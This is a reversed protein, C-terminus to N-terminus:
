VTQRANAHCCCLLLLRAAPNHMSPKCMGLAHVLDTVYTRDQLTSTHLKTGSSSSSYRMAAMVGEPHQPPLLVVVGACLNRCFTGLMTGSSSFSYRMAAWFGKIPHQPPLSMVVKARLYRSFTGLMTGSSSFSYRMAALRRSSVWSSSLSRCGSLHASSRPGAAHPETPSMDWSRPTYYLLSVWAVNLAM